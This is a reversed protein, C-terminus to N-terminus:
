GHNSTVETWLAPFNLLVRRLRTWQDKSIIIQEQGHDPWLERVLSLAELTTSEGLGEPIDPAQLVMQAPPVPNADPKALVWGGDMLRKGARAACVCDPCCGHALDAARGQGIFWDYLETAPHRVGHPCEREIIGAEADWHRPWREWPGPQPRHVACWEGVCNASEHVQLVQGSELLVQDM